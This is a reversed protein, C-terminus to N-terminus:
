LLNFLVGLTLKTDKLSPSLAELVSIDQVSSMTNISQGTPMTVAFSVTVLKGFTLDLAGKYFFVSSTVAELASPKELGNYLWLTGSKTGRMRLGAGLMMGAGFAKTKFGFNVGALTSIDFSELLLKESFSTGVGEELTLFGINFRLDAGLKFKNWSIKDFEVPTASETDIPFDLSYNPGVQIFSASLSSLAM